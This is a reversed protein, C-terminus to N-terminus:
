LLVNHEPIISSSLYTSKASNSNRIAKGQSFNSQNRIKAKIQERHRLKKILPKLNAKLLITRTNKIGSSIQNAPNCRAISNEQNVERFSRKARRMAQHSTRRRIQPLPTPSKSM